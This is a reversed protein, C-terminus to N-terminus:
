LWKKLITQALYGIKNENIFGKHVWKLKSLIKKKM